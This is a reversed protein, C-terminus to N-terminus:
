PAPTAAAADEGLRIGGLYALTRSVTNAEWYWELAYLRDAEDGSRLAGAAIFDFAVDSADVGADRLMRINRRTQDEAFDLMYKMPGDRKVNVLFGDEDYEAILSYHKALLASSTTYSRIALGLRALELNQGTFDRFLQERSFQSAWWVILYDEDTSLMANKARASTVGASDAASGIVMREFQNLNAKAARSFLDATEALPMGEPAPRGEIRGSMELIDGVVDYQIAAMQMFYVAELIRELEIDDEETVRTLIPRELKGGLLMDALNNYTIGEMLSMYAYITTGVSGLTRTIHNKLRDVALRRKAPARAFRQAYEIATKRGRQEDVWITRAVENAIGADVVNGLMLDFAAPALGQELLDDIKPRNENVTEILDDTYDSGYREPVRAYEALEEQMRLRWEQVKIEALKYSDVPLTPPAAPAPRPLESGTVLRYAEYIDGVARVEVGREEGRQFLDVDRKLNTDRDKRYGYPILVLKMGAAAAGDIKHPIGGVPGITGDPNITGTMAVDPRVTDGRLAALVGVTTLAGASPGDVMGSRQFFIRLGAVDRGSLDAAVLSAQWAAARWMEGYGDIQDEIFALRFNKSPNRDVWVELEGCHGFAVDARKGYSITHLTIPDSATGAALAFGGLASLGCALLLGTIRMRLTHM